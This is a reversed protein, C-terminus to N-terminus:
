SFARQKLRDLAIRQLDPLLATGYAVAKEIAEDRRSGTIVILPAAATAFDSYWVIYCNRERTLQVMAPTEGDPAESPSILVKRYIENKM